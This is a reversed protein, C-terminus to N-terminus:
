RSEKYKSKFKVKNSICLIKSILWYFLWIISLYIFCYYIFYYMFKLHGIYSLSITKFPDDTTILSIFFLVVIGIISLINFVKKM